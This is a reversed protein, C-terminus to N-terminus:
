VSNQEERVRRTISDRLMRSRFQDLQKRSRFNRKRIQVAPPFRLDRDHTWRWLTMLSIGFLEAVRPDPILEDDGGDDNGGDDDRRDGDRSATRHQPRHRSASAGPRRTAVRKPTLVASTETQPPPPPAPPEYAATSGLLAGLKASMKDM